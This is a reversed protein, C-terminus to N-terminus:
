VNFMFMFAKRTIIAKWTVPCFDSEYVVVLHRESGLSIQIETLRYFLTYIPPWHHAWLHSCSQAEKSNKYTISHATRESVRKVRKALFLFNHIAIFKLTFTLVPWIDRHAINIDPEQDLNMHNLFHWNRIYETRAGVILRWCIKEKKRKSVPLKSNTSKIM